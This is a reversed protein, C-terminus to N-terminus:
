ACVGHADAGRRYHDTIMDLRDMMLVQWQRFTPGEGNTLIDIKATRETLHFRLSQPTGLLDRTPPSEITSLPQDNSHNLESDPLHIAEPEAFAPEATTLPPPQQDLNGQTTRATAAEASNRVTATTPEEEDESSSREPEPSPSPQANHQSEGQTRTRGPRRTTRTPPGTTTPASM